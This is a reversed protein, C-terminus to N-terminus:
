KLTQHVDVVRNSNIKLYFICVGAHMIHLPTNDMFYFTCLTITLLCLTDLSDITDFEIEHLQFRSIIPAITEYFGTVSM